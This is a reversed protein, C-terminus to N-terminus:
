EGHKKADPIRPDVVVSWGNPWADRLASERGADYCRRGYLNLKLPDTIARNLTRYADACDRLHSAIRASGDKEYLDALDRVVEDPTM